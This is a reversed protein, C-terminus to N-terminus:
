GYVTEKQWWTKDAWGYRMLAGDFDLPDSKPNIDYNIAANSNVLKTAHEKSAVVGLVRGYGEGGMILYVYNM